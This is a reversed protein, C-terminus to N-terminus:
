NRQVRLTFKAMATVLITSLRGVITALQDCRCDEHVSRCAHLMCLVDVTALINDVSYVPGVIKAQKDCEADLKTYLARHLADRPDTQTLCLM